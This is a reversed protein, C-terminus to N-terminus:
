QYSGRMSDGGSNRGTTTRLRWMPHSGGGDVPRLDGIPEGLSFARVVGAIAAARRGPDGATSDSVYRIQRMGNVQIVSDTIQNVRCKGRAYSHAIACM